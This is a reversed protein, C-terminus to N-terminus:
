ILLGPLLVLLGLLPEIPQKLRYFEDYSFFSNMLIVGGCVVLVVGLLSTRKDVKIRMRLFIFWGVLFGVWKLRNIKHELWNTTRFFYNISIFRNPEVYFRRYFTFNDDVSMMARSGFDMWNSRIEKKNIESIQKLSAWRGKGNEGLRDVVEWPDQTDSFPKDANKLYGNKLVVGLTNVTGVDSIQFKGNNLLNYTPLLIVLLLDVIALQWWIKKTKENLWFFIKVLFPLLLFGPKLYMVLIDVMLVLVVSKLSIKRQWLWWNVLIFLLILTPAISETMVMNQFQVVGYDVWLLLCVIWNLFYKNSLKDILILFLGAGIASIVVSGFIVWRLDGMVVAPILFVPYTPTRMSLNPWSLNKMQKAVMLYSNSDPDIYPIKQWNLEVLMIVLSVLIMSGLRWWSTKLEM